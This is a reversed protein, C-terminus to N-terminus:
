KGMKGKYKEFIKWLKNFKITGKEQIMSGLVDKGFKIKM